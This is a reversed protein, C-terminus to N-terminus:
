RGTLCEYDGSFHTSLGDASLLGFRGGQPESHAYFGIDCPLLIPKRFSVSIRFREGLVSSLASICRAKSWMGHAIPANFGFLRASWPYLHIPNYDGSVKAYQRGLDDDLHWIEDVQQLDQVSSLTKAPAKGHRALNISKAEWILVDASTVKTVISFQWGLRHPQLDALECVIDLKEDLGLARYQTIQNEMHVLGMVRFPFGKDLLLMLHLPMALCHIWAPHVAGQQPWPLLSQYARQRDGAVQMGQCRLVTDPLCPHAIHQPRKLAAKLLLTPIYPLSQPTFLKASM